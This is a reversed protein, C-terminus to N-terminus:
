VQRGLYAAGGAGCGRDAACRRRCSSCRCTASTCCATRSAASWCAAVVSRGRTGVAILDAGAEHPVDLIKPAPGGLVARHVDVTVALGLARRAGDSGDHGVVIVKFM